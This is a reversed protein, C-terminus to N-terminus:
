TVPGKMGRLISILTEVNFLKPAVPNALLGVVACIARIEHEGDRELFAYIWPAVAISSATGVLMCVFMEVLCVLSTTGAQKASFFCASFKPAAYIFAGLAGWLALLYWPLM